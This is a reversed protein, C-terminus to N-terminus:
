EKLTPSPFLYDTCSTRNRLIYYGNGLHRLSDPLNAIPETPSFLGITTLADAPESIIKPEGWVAWDWSANGNPGPNTTFRLKVLKGRYPSLDLTVSEWKQQNYHQRFIEDGAVSVAFTVGDSNQSGEWLGIYFDLRIDPSDPLTLMFEGFTDGSDGQYFPPAHIASKTVGSITSRWDIVFDGGQQLPLETGNVVIGTRALHLRSLLDVELSSNTRELRFLAAHETVRTEIVSVDLPLSNIHVKSLDRPVDSLFYSKNPDLGLLTTENYARWHPLNRYTQAQTVGFIREYGADNPLVFTSVALLINIPSLEM